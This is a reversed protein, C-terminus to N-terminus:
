YIHQGQVAEQWTLRLLVWAISDKKIWKQLRLQDSLTLAQEASSMRCLQCCNGFHVRASVNALLSRWVCALASLCLNVLNQQVRIHQTKLNDVGQLIHNAAKITWSIANSVCCSDVSKASIGQWRTGVHPMTLKFLHKLQRSIPNLGLVWVCRLHHMTKKLFLVFLDVNVDKPQLINRYESTKVNGVETFRM